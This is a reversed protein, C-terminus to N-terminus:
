QADLKMSYRPGGLMCGHRYGATQTFVLCAPAGGPNSITNSSM